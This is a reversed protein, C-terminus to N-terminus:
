SLNQRVAILLRRLFLREDATFGALSRAEVEAWLREVPERLQRGRDTLHVRSVRADSPDQRRVVVGMAEMRQLTRSVTPAEVHCREVLESHTLGEQEWLQLLVLEQGPYLGHVELASAIM